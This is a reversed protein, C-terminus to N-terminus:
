ALGGNARLVQGNIWAADPGLAVADITIHRGRLKKAFEILRPKM